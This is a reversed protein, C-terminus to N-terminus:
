QAPGTPVWLALEKLDALWQAVYADNAALDAQQEASLALLAVLSLKPKSPGSPDHLNV